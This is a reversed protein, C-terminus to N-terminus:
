NVNYVTDRFIELHLLITSLQLGVKLQENLGVPVHHVCVVLVAGDDVPEEVLELDPLVM